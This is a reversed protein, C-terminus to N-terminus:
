ERLLGSQSGGDGVIIQAKTPSQLQVVILIVVLVHRHTPLPQPQGHLAIVPAGDDVGLCALGGCLRRLHTDSARVTSSPTGCVIAELPIEQMVSTSQDLIEHQKTV